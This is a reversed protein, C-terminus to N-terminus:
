RTEGKGAAELAELRISYEAMMVFCWAADKVIDESLVSRAASVVKEALALRARADLFDRAVHACQTEHYDQMKALEAKLRANEAELSMLKYSCRRDDDFTSQGSSSIRTRGCSCPWKFCYQCIQPIMPSM